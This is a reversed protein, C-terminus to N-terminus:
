SLLRAKAADSPAVPPASRADPTLGFDMGFARVVGAADRWIQLAPHKVVRGKDGHVLVSAPQDEQAQNLEEAAAREIAVAQCYTAFGYRDEPELRGAKHLRPGLERWVLRAYPHLWRPCAPTRSGPDGPPPVETQRSKRDGRVAKLHRSAPKPGRAGM